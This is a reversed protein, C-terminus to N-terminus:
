VVQRPRQDLYRATGAAGLLMSALLVSVGHKSFLLRLIALGVALRLWKLADMVRDGERMHDGNHHTAQGARRSPVWKGHAIKQNASGSRQPTWCDAKLVNM